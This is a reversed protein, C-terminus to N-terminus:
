EAQTRLADLQQQQAVVTRTLDDLQDQIRALTAMIDLPSATEGPTPFPDDPTATM